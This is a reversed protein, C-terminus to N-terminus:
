SRASGYPSRNPPMLSVGETRAKGRVASESRGLKMGIVRTPTNGKALAKLEKVDSDSWSTGTNKLSKPLREGAQKRETPTMGIPEFLKHKTARKTTGSAAQTNTGTAAKTKTSRSRTATHKAKSTTRPM